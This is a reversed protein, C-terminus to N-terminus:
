ADQVEQLKIRCSNGLKEQEARALLWKNLNQLMHWLMM